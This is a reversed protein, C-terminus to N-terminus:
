QAGRRKVAEYESRQARPGGYVVAAPTKVEEEPDACAASAVSARAKNTWHKEILALAATFSNVKTQRKKPRAPSRVARDQEKRKKPPALVAVAKAAPPPVYPRCTMRPTGKTLAKTEVAKTEMAKATPPPVYPYCRMRPTGKGKTLAKTEVAKTEM